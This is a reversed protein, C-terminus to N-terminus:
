PLSYTLRYTVDEAADDLATLVFKFGGEQDSFATEDEDFSSGSDVTIWEGTALGSVVAPAGPSAVGTATTGDPATVSVEVRGSGSSVEITLPVADSPFIGPDTIEM